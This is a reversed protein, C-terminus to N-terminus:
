GIRAFINTFVHITQYYFIYGVMCYSTFLIYNQFNIVVNCSKNDFLNYEIIYNNTCLSVFSTLFLPIAYYYYINHNM